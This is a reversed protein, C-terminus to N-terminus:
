ATLYKPQRNDLAVGVAAFIQAGHYSRLTSIGLKSLIKLRSSIAEKLKMPPNMIEYLVGDVRFRVRYSKEYPEIHIDSAGRKLADTLILNVLRVM